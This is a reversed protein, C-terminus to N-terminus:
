DAHTHHLVRLFSSKTADISNIYETREHEPLRTSARRFVSILSHNSISNLKNKYTDHERPTPSRKAGLATSKGVNAGQQSEIQPVLTLHSFVRCYLYVSPYRSRQGTGTLLVVIPYLYRLFAGECM